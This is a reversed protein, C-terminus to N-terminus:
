GCYCIFHGNQQYCTVFDCDVPPIHVFQATIAHQPIPETSRHNRGVRYLEDTKYLSADATFGPISM